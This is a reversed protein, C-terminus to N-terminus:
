SFDRKSWAINLMAVNAVMLSVFNSKKAWSSKLTRIGSTLISTLGQLNSGNSHHMDRTTFFDCCQLFFLFSPDKVQPTAFDTYSLTPTISSVFSTGCLSRASFLIVPARIETSDWGEVETMQLTGESTIKRSHYRMSLIKLITLLINEPRKGTM